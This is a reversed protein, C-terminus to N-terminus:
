TFIFLSKIHIYTYIDQPFLPLLVKNANLKAVDLLDNIISLLLRSCDLTMSLQARDQEGLTSQKSYLVLEVFNLIANLPTRLEHSTNAVFLEKAKSQAHAENRSSRLQDLIENFNRTLALSCAFGMFDMASGSTVVNTFGINVETNDYDADFIEHYFM